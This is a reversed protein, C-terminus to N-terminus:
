SQDTYKQAIKKFEDTLRGFVAVIKPDFSTGSESLIKAMAKEHSFAPKYVRKSIMADYADALAMLRGSLPIQEGKLGQPYGSGDWKEHHTYAMENAVRLFSGNGLKRNTASIINRGIITHQKMEEFEEESLPGQKLLINDSIGVKGIDHLPASRYLSTLLEDTLIDSYREDKKLENALMRVYERTRQIHGGTDSDRTETMSAMSEIIAEQARSLNRISLRAKNEEKWFRLLNVATFNAIL